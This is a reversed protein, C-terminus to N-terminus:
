SCRRTLHNEVMHKIQARTICFPVVSSAILSGICNMMLLFVEPHDASWQFRLVSHSLVAFTVPLGVLFALWAAPSRVTLHWWSDVFHRKEADSLRNRHPLMDGPVKFGAQSNM